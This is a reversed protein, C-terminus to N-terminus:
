VIKFGEDETIVFNKWSTPIIYRRFNVLKIRRIVGEETEEYQIKVHADCMYIVRKIITPEHIDDHLSYYIRGYNMKVRSNLHDIFNFVSEQNHKIFLTSLNDVILMIPKKMLRMISEIDNNLKFLNSISSTVVKARTEKIWDVREVGSWPSADIIFINNINAKLKYLREYIYKPTEELTVYIIQFRNSNDVTEKILFERKGSFPPGVIVLSFYDIPIKGILKELM